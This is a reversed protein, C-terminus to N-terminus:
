GHELWYYHKIMFTSGIALYLVETIHQTGMSDAKYELIFMYVFLLFFCLFDQKNELTDKRNTLALPAAFYLYQYFILSLLYLVGGFILANMYGADTHRYSSINDSINGHGALLTENRLPYYHGQMLQDTSGTSIVGKDRFNYYAEFAFPFVENVLADRQKPTILLYFFTLSLIVALGVKWVDKGWSYFKNLSYVSYLFLGIFLGIFGTRGSLSIGAIMLFLVIYAKLGSLYKQGEILQLRFFMICAVGYAAPLEFFISGTLAYGRFKDVGYEPNEMFDKFGPPKISYLFEGFPTYLYGALHILGQLAFAYCIIASMKEYAESEENEIFLPLSFIFSMLMFIEIILRKQLLFYYQGHLVTFALNIVLLVVTGILITANYRFYFYTLPVSKRIFLYYFAVLIDALVVSNYVYPIRFNFVIMFLIIVKFFLKM